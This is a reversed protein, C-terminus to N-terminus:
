LVLGRTGTLNVYHVGLYHLTWVGILKTKQYGGARNIIKSIFAHKVSHRLLLATDHSDLPSIVNVRSELEPSINVYKVYIHVLLWLMQGVLVTICVASYGSGRGSRIAVNKGTMVLCRVGCRPAAGHRCLHGKKKWKERATQIEIEWERSKKRKM